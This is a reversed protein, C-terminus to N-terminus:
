SRARKQAVSFFEKNKTFKDDLAKQTEVLKKEIEAMRNSMDTRMGGVGGGKGGQKLKALRAVVSPDLGTGGSGRGGQKIFKEMMDLRQLLEREKQISQKRFAEEEVKRQEYVRKREKEIKNRQEEM